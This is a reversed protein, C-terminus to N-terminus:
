DGSWDAAEPSCNGAQVPVLFPCPSQQRLRTIQQCTTMQQYSSHFTKPRNCLHTLLQPSELTMYVTQLLITQVTAHHEVTEHRRLFNITHAITCYTSAHCFYQLYQIFPNVLSAFWQTTHCLICLYSISYKTDFIVVNWKAHNMPLMATCGGFCPQVM